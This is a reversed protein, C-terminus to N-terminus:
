QLVLQCLLSSIHSPWNKPLQHSRRKGGGESGVLGELKKWIEGNKVPISCRPMVTLPSSICDEDQEAVGKQKRDQQLVWMRWNRSRETCLLTLTANCCGSHTENQFCTITIKGIFSYPIEGEKWWPSDKVFCPVQIVQQTASPPPLLQRASGVSTLVLFHRWLRDGHLAETCIEMTKYSSSAKRVSVSAREYLSGTRRMVNRPCLLSSLNKSGNRPKGPPETPLSDVQLAPSAPKIGSNPDGPSPCPLRSWYEERFFGMSLPTKHAVAWLVALLWIHKSCSPM